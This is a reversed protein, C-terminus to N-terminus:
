PARARRRGDDGGDDARHQRAPQHQDAPRQHAVGDRVGHQGPDHEGVDNPAGNASPASTNPNRATASMPAIRPVLRTLSSAAIPMTKVVRNASPRTSIETVGLWVSRFWMMKPLM